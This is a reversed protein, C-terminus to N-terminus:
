ARAFLDALGITEVEIGALQRLAGADYRCTDFGTPHEGVLGIRRGKLTALVREAVRRDAESPAPGQPLATGQEGEGAILEALSRDIEPADPAAYLWRYSKGARGLAHAALNLGCFSNLRLRGGSRPEPFAWIALPATTEAAIRVTMSADTFTVQLLLLLDLPQRQLAAMAREAADADFLLERPGVFAHGSRDLAAFARAAMEEAFPVDFTPRALALVGIRAMTSSGRTAAASHARSILFAWWAAM